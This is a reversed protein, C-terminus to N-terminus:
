SEVKWTVWESPASNCLGVDINQGSGCLYAAGNSDSALVNYLQFGGTLTGVQVFDVGTKGSSQYVGDMTDGIFWLSDNYSYLQDIQDGKFRTDLSQNTFPCTATVTGASDCKQDLQDGILEQNSTGKARTEIKNTGDSYAYLCLLPSHNPLCVDVDDFTNDPQIAAPRSRVATVQSAPHSNPAAPAAAATTVPVLGLLGSAVGAIVLFRLKM